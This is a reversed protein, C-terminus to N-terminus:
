QNSEYISMKVNGAGKILKFDEGIEEWINNSFQYYKGECEALAGEEKVLDDLLKKSAVKYIM